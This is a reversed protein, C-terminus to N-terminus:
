FDGLSVCVGMKNAKLFDSGLADFQAAVNVKAAPNTLVHAVSVNCVGNSDLSKKLTTASDLKYESGVALTRTGVNGEINLRTGLSFNNNVKQFFSTTIDDGKNSTVLSATLDKQTYEAGVNYDSVAGAKLCFAAAGGVAVGDFGIAGSACVKNKDAFDTGFNLLGAFFDKGYTAEVNASPSANGSVALKGSPILKDFTIKANTADAKGASNVNVEVEAGLDKDKHNIKLNGAIGNSHTATTEITV